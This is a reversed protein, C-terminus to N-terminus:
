MTKYFDFFTKVLVEVSLNIFFIFFLLIKYYYSHFSGLLKVRTLLQIANCLQM